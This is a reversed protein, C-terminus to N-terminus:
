NAVDDAATSFNQHPCFWLIYFFQSRFGSCFRFYLFWTFKTMVGIM